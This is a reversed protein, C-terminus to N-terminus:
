MYWELKFFKISRIASLFFFEKQMIDRRTYQQVNGNRSKVEFERLPFSHAKLFYIFNNIMRQVASYDRM